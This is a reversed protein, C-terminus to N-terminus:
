QCLYQCPAICTVISLQGCFGFSRVFTDETPRATAGAYEQEGTSLERCQVVRPSGVRPPFLALKGPMLILWPRSVLATSWSKWARGKTLPVGCPYIANNVDGTSEGGRAEEKGGRRPIEWPILRGPLQHLDDCSSLVSDTTCPRPSDSFFGCAMSALPDRDRWRTDEGRHISPLLPPGLAGQVQMMLGQPGTVRQENNDPEVM